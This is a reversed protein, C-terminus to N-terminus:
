VIFIVPHKQRCLVSVKFRPDLWPTLERKQNNIINFNDKNQWYILDSLDCWKIDAVEEPNLNININEDCIGVLVHDLEHESLGNDFDAQYIFSGVDKLNINEIGLEEKLRSVGAELVSEGPQPHSCCTNTWLGGCHYKRICAATIIGAM